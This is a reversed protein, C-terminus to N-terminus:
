GRGAAGSREAVVTEFFSRYSAVVKEETYAALYSDWGARAMAEGLGPEGFAQRIAGAMARHDDIPVLLGNHGSTILRAPGDTCTSVMPTRQAWAELVVNGLPEHRSPFVVLDAAAYLAPTDDRWGLFRVRPKVGLDQALTELSARLPGEGALWLYVDPVLALARLLVDFAKNEHLRGLALVLPANEPTYHLKRATPAMHQQPVFNPLHVAREAPFGQKIVYDRIDETNCVLWDCGRYYKLDYYGGLRACFVHNGPRVFRTARNMWSLVVAPQFRAIEQRLARGTKFDFRGGFPLLVPRLGAERMRALRVSAERMVVHQHLGARHLAICLREFFLEAGGQEAGAMVQLIRLGM